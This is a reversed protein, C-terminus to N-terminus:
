PERDAFGLVAKSRWRTMYEAHTEVTSERSIAAAHSFDHNALSQAWHYDDRAESEPRCHRFFFFFVRQRCNDLISWWLEM